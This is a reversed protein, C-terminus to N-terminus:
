SSGCLSSTMKRFFNLLLLMEKFDENVVSNPSYFSATVKNIWGGVAIIHQLFEKSMWLTMQEVTLFSVSLIKNVQLSVFTLAWGSQGVSSCFCLSFWFSTCHSSTQSEERFFFFLIKCVLHFCQSGELIRLQSSRSFGTNTKPLCDDFALPYPPHRCGLVHM